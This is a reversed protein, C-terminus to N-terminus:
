VRMIELCYVSTCFMIVDFVDVGEFLSYVKQYSFTIGQRTNSLIIILGAGVSFSQTVLRKDQEYVVGVTCRDLDEMALCMGLKM